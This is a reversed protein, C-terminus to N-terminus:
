KPKNANEPIFCRLLQALGNGQCLTTRGAGFCLESRQKMALALLVQGLVNASILLQPAILKLLPATFLLIREPLVSNPKRKEPLIGGTRAIHLKSFPLANLDNETRGKACAFPVRSKLSPDAGQGSLFVFVVKPNAALLAEAACLM